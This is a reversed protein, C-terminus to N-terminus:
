SNLGPTQWRGPIRVRVEAQYSILICRPDAQCIVVCDLINNVDSIMGIDGRLYDKGERICYDGTFNFDVQRTTLETIPCRNKEIKPREYNM